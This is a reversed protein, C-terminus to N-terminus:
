TKRELRSMNESKKTHIIARALVELVINLLHPLLQCEKRRERRLPADNTRESNFIINASKKTPKKNKYTDKILNREIGLKRLPKIM